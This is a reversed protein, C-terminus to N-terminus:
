ADGLWRVQIAAPLKPAEKLTAGVVFQVKDQGMMWKLVPGRASPQLVDLRDILCLGTTRSALAYGLALEVRWKESESLFQYGTVGYLPELDPGIVVPTGFAATLENLQENVEKLAAGLYTAPLAEIDKALKAFGQVDAHHRQAAATLSAANERTAEVQRAKAAEDKKANLSAKLDEVKRRAADLAGIAPAEPVAQVAMAAAEAHQLKKRADELVRKETQILAKTDSAERAAQPAPVDAPLYEHLDGARSSELVTGCCPCPATWGGASAAQASLAEYRAELAAVRQEGAVVQERFTEAQGALKRTEAAADHQRQDSELRDKAEKADELADEIDLAEQELQAWPVPPAEPVPARWNEGKQDGYNEGAVAKWAGRAESARTEAAKTAPGFGGRFESAIAEIRVDSHGRAKLDATVREVGLQIGSLAFLMKRREAVDAQLFLSPTIASLEAPSMRPPTSGGFNGTKLSLNYVASVGNQDVDLVIAGNREGHTLVEALEAKTRTGRPKVEALAFRIAELVASKGAGNPGCVLLAKADPKIAQEFRRHSLFNEITINKLRM